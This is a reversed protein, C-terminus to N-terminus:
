IVTFDSAAIVPHTQLTAFLVQAGAGNGDADYYLNGTSQDYIIRDDADHAATGAFFANPNLTGPAGIATFVADDLAIRDSGSAFDGIGDVNNSGLATTFQFIDAGAGGILLDNGLGGDLVNSGANGIVSQGFENGSLNIAATGNNDTTSLVEVEAGATLVYSVNAAVNEFGQGVAEVIVDGPNDVIYTDNGGQGIMVDAGGAGNLYNNGDNGIISQGFENGVLYLAATGANDTTSLVEIEAGATLVYSVSSAVNEFGQGVAEVIVDGANDVIYTDNGGRGIMVDAGGAGDLYNNGNNGIISQGFENGVLNIAATGNNDVTSLVEVEAGGNLVFSERAAVNDFGGGVAEVVHDNARVLLADNGGLGVLTDTGGDAVLYDAASTGVITDNSDLGNIVVNVTATGGGALSYTFSDFAPANSGGTQTRPTSDFAHNPDYNFLGDAGLTLLAGSALVIQTGVNAASGNVAAVSLPPGDPDSDPGSGHDAFVSGSVTSAEDTSLSDNRAVAPEDTSDFLVQHDFSASDHGGNATGGGDVLTFSVTRYGNPPTPASSSISVAEAVAAVAADDANANFSITLSTGGGSLTGVVVNNYRVDTGLVDVSSSTVIGLQDGAAAGATIAVTLSGGGYNASDIDSVSVVAAVQASPGGATYAAQPHFTATYIDFGSNTDDTTLKTGTEFLITKGDPSFSFPTFARIDTTNLGTPSVLSGLPTFAGTELNKIYVVQNFNMLLETGDPSLRGGDISGQLENGSSDTSARIITGTTLDKIFIDARGNTDGDVLNASTSTFVIKTGDPSFQLLGGSGGGSATGGPTGDARASVLTVAGTLLDKLFVQGGSVGPILNDAVSSFAIKTGDPSFVGGSGGFHAAEGSASSTVRTVTGTALDKLFLHRYPDDVGTSFEEDSSFLIKTGDPSFLPAQSAGTGEHGDAYVSVRTTAGTTLDKIFVDSQGNTDAAVLNDAKSTFAIRTGDPSFAASSADGDGAAGASSTSVLSIVGTALDKVYIDFSFNTDEPVLRFGSEFVVKTGDPSFAPKLSFPGGDVYTPIRTVEAEFANFFPADNVPAVNFTFSNPSGDTENNSDQVQFAFTAYPSGNGDAGPQFSLRGNGIDFASVLRGSSVAIPAQSGPGDPDLFMTGHNPATTIKVAAFSNGDPDSFGFDALSFVYSGDENITVTNDTGAPQTEPTPGVDNISRAASNTGLDALSRADLWEHHSQDLPSQVAARGFHPM